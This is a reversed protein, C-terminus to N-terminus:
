VPAELIEESAERRALQAAALAMVVFGIVQLTVSWADGALRERFALVGLAVSAAPDSVTLAPMSKALPGARYAMQNLGLSVAGVGILAYLPWDALLHLLGGSQFIATAQKILAAVLGFGIGAATGLLAPRHGAPWRLGLLTFVGVVATATLSSWALVDADLKVAGQSPRAALLFTTLGAVVLLALLWERGSPRRGELVASIPLAFLVGSILLPQVVALQGHDLAVVHLILGVVGAVLGTIWLPRTVLHGLFRHTRGDPAQRASHHQLITSSAAAVASGLAVGVVGLESM